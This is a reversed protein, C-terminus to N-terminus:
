GIMAGPIHKEEDAIARDIAEIMEQLRILSAAIGTSAHPEKNAEANEISTRATRRREEVYATRVLRLDSIPDPEAM